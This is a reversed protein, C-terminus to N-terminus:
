NRSSWPRGFIRYSNAKFSRLVGFGEFAEETSELMGWSYKACSSVKIRQFGPHSQSGNYQTTRQGILLARKFSIQSVQKVRIHLNLSSVGAPRSAWITLSDASFFFCFFVFFFFFFGSDLRYSNSELWPWNTQKFMNTFPKATVQRDPHNWPEDHRDLPRVCKSAKRWRLLGRWQQM